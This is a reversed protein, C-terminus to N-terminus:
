GNLWGWNKRLKIMSVTASSIGYEAAITPQHEGKDARARLAIVQGSTLKAAGNRSGRPSRGHEVMELSNAAHTKWRLHNPNVCGLHGNGCSHAADHQRSPRPGHRKECIVQHVKRVRGGVSAQAYGHNDRSYPWLLCAVADSHLHAAAIAAQAEGLAARPM